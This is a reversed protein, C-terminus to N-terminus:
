ANKKKEKNRPEKKGVPYFGLDKTQGTPCKVIKNCSIEGTKSRKAEMRSGSWTLDEHNKFM